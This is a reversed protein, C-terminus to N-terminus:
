AIIFIMKLWMSVTIDINIIKDNNKRNSKSLLISENNKLDITELGKGKALQIYNSEKIIKISENEKKSFVVKIEGELKDYHINEKELLSELLEVRSKYTGTYIGNLKEKETAYFISQPYALEVQNIQDKWYSYVSGIATFAVASTITVLFFMRTNDKIKYHLNAICLMNINKKYFVKNDKVKKIVFVSLQSFLLYTGIIVMSTVPVIRNVLELETVTVARCYAVILLIVCLMALIPSSKPELKPTQTGKLLKIVKDERVVFYIFYSTLISILIFYLTIVGISKIPIYFKLPEIGIFSSIVILVIKAFVMGVLIGLVSAFVNMVLNEIFIMKKVQRKSIGITWLIGFEKNRSKLFVSASYFVFLFLFLYIIITTVKITLIIYDDFLSIDLDPHNIFM